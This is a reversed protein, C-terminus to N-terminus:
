DNYFTKGKGGKDMMARIISSRTKRDPVDQPTPPTGKAFWYAATEKASTGGTKDGHINSTADLNSRMTRQKELKILFDEDELVEDLDVGWKKATKQALAVDDQHPIGAGKLAMREVKQLLASDSQNTQQPTEQSAKRLDKLERKLSGVTEHLKDYDSKIVSVTEVSTQESGEGAGNSATDAEQNTNLIM